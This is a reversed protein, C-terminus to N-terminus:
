PVCFCICIPSPLHPDLVATLWLSIWALPPVATSFGLVKIGSGPEAGDGPEELAIPPGDGEGAYTRPASRLIKAREFPNFVQWGFSTPM